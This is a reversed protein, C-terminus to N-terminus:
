PTFYEDFEDTIKDLENFAGKLENLEGFTNNFTPYSLQLTRHTNEFLLISM